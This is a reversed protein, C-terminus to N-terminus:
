SEGKITAIVREPYSYYMGFVNFVDRYDGINKYRMWDLVFMRRELEDGMQQETLGTSESIKKLLYSKGSIKFTDTFPDWKFVQNTIPNKTRENVGVIEFIENVRRVYRDKHRVMLLFVVLDLSGLLSAPLDIPPTTLRDILKGTNEAHITALSAHGTAMEQFLVFAERGRVEGVIIYDPRQRLSERLLDFLDIEGIKKSGETSMPVRAVHPVWHPHPLKLEPTDEISCIKKEPKIFLSLVNLFSTKGSATGGSILISKGFDVLMWLFALIQLDTTRYNLLHIPTLPQETFKRITFNSGKRAIDTALTAQLRSGDPLSGDVLPTAVSISKGCMQSLRIIFSDLENADGYDINTIVSALKPNRHFIFMPIGIGDCSIDEIESDKMLPEIRGLGVFDREIYYHLVKREQESVEIKLSVLLEDATKHLFEVAEFRKLKSFDIDLKQEILERLKLLIGNLKQSKEPEILKYVYKNLKPDWSIDAYAFVTEGKAPKKPILPYTLKVPIREEEKIKEIRVKSPVFIPIEFGEIKPQIKPEPEQKPKKPRKPYLTSKYGAAAKKVFNGLKM